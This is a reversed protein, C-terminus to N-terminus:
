STTFERVDGTSSTENGALYVKADAPVHVTLKTKSKSAVSPKDGDFSFALNVMQGPGLTVTKTENVAKGDKTYEARVEYAYRNGATLGRSVFQRDSGTSTTATGNVFIKAEAPVNVNLLATQSGNLSNYIEGTMPTPAGEAAPGPTPPSPPNNPGNGPGQMSPTAAPGDYIVTGSSSSSSSSSSSCGYGYYGGSSSSSSSSSSGWGYYYAHHHWGGSCSSGWCGSSSSSSSGWSGWCGSSSSSGWCGSSSSSSSSGWGFHAESRNASFAVGAVTFALMWRILNRRLM